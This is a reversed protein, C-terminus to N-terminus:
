GMIGNVRFRHVSMHFHTTKFKLDVVFGFKRIELSHDFCRWFPNQIAVGNIANVVICM